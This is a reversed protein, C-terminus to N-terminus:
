SGGLRIRFEHLSKEAITVTNSTGFLKVGLSVRGSAEFVARLPRISINAAKAHRTVKELCGFYVFVTDNVNGTVM